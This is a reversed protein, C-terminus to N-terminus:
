WFHFWNTALAFAAVLDQALLDIGAV